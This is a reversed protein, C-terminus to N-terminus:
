NLNKRMQQVVAKLDKPLSSEYTLKQNSRPHDFSIKWAHLAVRELLPKEEERGRYRTKISSLFFRELGGYEPDVLLPHHISQFHVRIQHTRGTHIQVQLFAYRKFDEVVSYATKSPKGKPHTIMLKKHPHMKIPVEIQGERPPVGHVICQYYKEVKNGEFQEQLLKHAISNKAFIILGSTQRDLRHVIFVQSRNKQLTQYLNKRNPDYRDPISLIGAPKNVLILDEDEFVIEFRNKM